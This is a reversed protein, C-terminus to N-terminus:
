RGRPVRTKWRGKGELKKSQYCTWPLLRLQLFATRFHKQAGGGPASYEGVDYGLLHKPAMTILTCDNLQTPFGNLSVEEDRWNKTFFHCPNADLHEIVDDWFFQYFPTPPWLLHLPIHDVSIGQRRTPLLIYGARQRAERHRVTFSGDAIRSVQAPFIGQLLAHCGVGTKGPSDAHASSGPPSCDM